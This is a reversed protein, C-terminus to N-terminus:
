MDQDPMYRKTWFLGYMTLSGNQAHFSCSYNLYMWFITVNQTWNKMLISEHSKQQFVFTVLEKGCERIMPDPIKHLEVQSYHNWLSMDTAMNQASVEDDEANPPPKYQSLLTPICRLTLWSSFDAITFVRPTGIILVVNVSSHTTPIAFPLSTWHSYYVCIKSLLIGSSM